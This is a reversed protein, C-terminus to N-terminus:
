QMRQCESEKAKSVACGYLQAPKKGQQHVFVRTSPQEIVRLVPADCKPCAKM